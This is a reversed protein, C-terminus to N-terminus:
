KKVIKDQSYNITINGTVNKPIIKITWIGIPANNIRKRILGNVEEKASGSNIQTGVSFNGQKKGEMNYIEVSLEGEIIRSQVKLNFQSGEENIEVKVNKVGSDNKLEIKRQINLSTTEQAITASVFFLTIFLIGLISKLLKKM